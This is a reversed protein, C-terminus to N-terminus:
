GGIDHAEGAGQEDLLYQMLFLHGILDNIVERTSEGVTPKGEWIRSKLIGVKRNIDPFVGKVGLSQDVDQYKANGVAFQEAWEPVLNTFIYRAQPPLYPTVKITIAPVRTSMNKCDGDHGPILECEPMRTCFIAGTTM